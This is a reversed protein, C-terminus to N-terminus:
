HTRNAKISKIRGNLLSQVPRFTFVAAGFIFTGCVEASRTVAESIQQPQLLVLFAIILSLTILAVVRWVAEECWEYSGYENRVKTRSAIVCTAGMILGLVLTIFPPIFDFM